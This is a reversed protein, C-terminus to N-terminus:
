HGAATFVLRMHLVSSCRASACCLPFSTGAVLCATPSPALSFVSKSAMNMNLSIDLFCYFLFQLTYLDTIVHSSECRVIKLLDRAAIPSLLDLTFVLSKYIDLHSTTVIVMSLLPPIFSHLCFPSGHVHIM